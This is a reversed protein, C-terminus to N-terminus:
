HEAPWNRRSAVHSGILGDTLAILGKMEIASISMFDEALGNLEPTYTKRTMSDTDCGVAQLQEMNDTYAAVDKSASLDPLMAEDDLVYEIYKKISGDDRVSIEHFESVRRGSDSLSDYSLALIMNEESPEEYVSIDHNSDITVCHVNAEFLEYLNLLFTQKQVATAPPLDESKYM